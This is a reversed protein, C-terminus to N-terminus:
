VWIGKDWGSSEKGDWSFAVADSWIGDTNQAYMSIRYEGDGSILDSDTIVFPYSKNAPFYNPSAISMSTVLYGIGRGFPMGKKTSRAEFNIFNESVSFDVTCIKQTSVVSTDHTFAIEPIAM